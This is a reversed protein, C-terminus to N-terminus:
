PAEVWAARPCYTWGPPVPLRSPEWAGGTRRERAPRSIYLVDRRRPLDGLLLRATGMKRMEPRVYLFYAVPAPGIELGNRPGRFQVALGPRHVLYGLITEPNDAPCAVLTRTSARALVVDMMANHFTKFRDGEFGVVSPPYTAVNERESRRWWKRVFADDGAEAARLVFPLISPAASM